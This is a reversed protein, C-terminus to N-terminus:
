CLTTEWIKLFLYFLVTLYLFFHLLILGKYSFIISNKRVEGVKGVPNKHCKYIETKGILRLMRNEEQWHCNLQNQEKNGEQCVGMSRICIIIMTLTDCNLM